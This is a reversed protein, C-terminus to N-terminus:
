PDVGEVTWVDTLLDILFKGCMGGNLFVEVEDAQVHQAPLSVVEPSDAAVDLSENVVGVWIENDDVVDVVEHGKAANVDSALEAADDSVDDVVGVSREEEDPIVVEALFGVHCAVKALHEKKVGCVDEGKGSLAFDGSHPEDAAVVQATVGVIGLVMESYSVVVERM